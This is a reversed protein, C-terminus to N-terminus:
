KSTSIIELSGDRSILIEKGSEKLDPSIQLVLSTIKQGLRTKEQELEGITKLYEQNTTHRAITTCFFTAVLMGLVFAILPSRLKKMFTLKKRWSNEAIHVHPELPLNKLIKGWQEQLFKKTCEGQYWTALIEGQVKQFFRIRKLEPDIAKRALFAIFFIMFGSVIVGAWTNYISFTSQSTNLVFLITPFCGAMIISLGTWKISNTSEYKQEIKQNIFLLIKQVEEETSLLPPKSKDSQIM